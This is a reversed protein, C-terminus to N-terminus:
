NFVLLSSGSIVLFNSKQKNKPQFYALDLCVTKYKLYCESCMIQLSATPGRRIADTKHRVRLPFKHEFVTLKKGM